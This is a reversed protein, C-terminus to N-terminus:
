ESGVRKTFVVWRSFIYNLVVVFISVLIKFWNGNLYLVDVFIWIMATELLGSVVRCSVFKFMEPLVVNCSWDNSKFVFPKNTLFAFIVAVFWAVVNSIAGSWCVWNYLSFYVLFNVLTTLGGFFLYSLVNWYKDIIKRFKEM